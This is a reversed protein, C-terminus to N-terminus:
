PVLVVVVRDDQFFAPDPQDFEAVLDGVGGVQVVVLVAGGGEAGGDRAHALAVVHADAVAQADGQRRVM